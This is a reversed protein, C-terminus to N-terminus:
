RRMERLRGAIRAEVAEWPEFRAAGGQAATLRREVEALWAADIDETAADVDDDLTSASSM